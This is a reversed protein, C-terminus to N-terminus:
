NLPYCGPTNPTGSGYPFWGGIPIAPASYSQPPYICSDVVISSFSYICDGDADCEWPSEGAFLTAPAYPHNCPDVSLGPPITGADVRACDSPGYFAATILYTDNPWYL